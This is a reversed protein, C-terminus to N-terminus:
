PEPRSAKRSAVNSSPLDLSPAGSGAPSTTIPLTCAAEVLNQTVEVRPKWWGLLGPLLIVTALGAVLMTAATLVGFRAVPAITAWALVAFGATIEAASILISRGSTRMAAELGIRRYRYLFHVAYDVGTGLAISALMASTLELPLEDPVLGMVGYIIALTLVSPVLGILGAVWSRFLVLLILFVLPLSTLSSSLQNRRVSQTMAEQLIPYGSVTVEVASAGPAANGAAGAAADGAVVWTPQLTDEVIAAVRLARSKSLATGIIAGVHAEIAGEILPHADKGVQTHVYRASRLFGEADELESPAVSPKILAVFREPSLQLAVLEHAIADALPGLTAGERLAIMGDETITRGLSALVADRIAKQDLGGPDLAAQIKAVAEPGLGALGAVREAADRLVAPAHTPSRPVTAVHGALATRAIDRIEGTVRRAVATDFGGIAVNLLAGKRSPDILLKVAGDSSAALFAYQENEERTAGLRRTGKMGEHVVSIVRTISEIHTVGAVASVRDEFAAIRGLVAPESIDGVVLVQLFVSGGFRDAMFRDARDPESGEAFFSRTDMRVEVNPIQIALVITAVASASLIWWRAKRCALAFRGLLADFRTGREHMRRAPMPWLYLAAPLVVMAVVLSLATGLALQWGFERMPALDMTLFSVFGAIATLASVLVPWGVSVLMDEVSGGQTLYWVLLHVPYAAGLTVLIVPLSSSVLTLPQGLWAMAGLAWLIGLGVTILTLVAARASRLSLLVLGLIIALVFPALRALDEQSGNAAAEAIFPAGAFHITIGPPKPVSDVISRVKEAAVKPSLHVKELEEKIQCVLRTSSGDAAVVSGVLYDLALVDARIAALAASDTPIDTPVLDRQAGNDGAIVALETLATVHQVEPTDRLRKALERVYALREPKFLDDQTEVGVLAVNMGGFRKLIRNMQEVEVDDAPLFRVVDDDFALPLKVASLVSLAAALVLM